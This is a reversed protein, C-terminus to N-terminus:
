PRKTNNRDGDKNEKNTFCYKNISEIIRNSLTYTNKHSSKLFNKAYSYLFINQKDKYNTAWEFLSNTLNVYHNLEISKCLPKIKNEDEYTLSWIYMGLLKHEFFKSSVDNMSYKKIINSYAVYLSHLNKSTEPDNYYNYLQEQINAGNFMNEPEKCYGGVMYTSIRPIDAVFKNSDIGKIGFRDLKVMYKILKERTVYQLNKDLSEIAMSKDFRNEDGLSYMRAYNQVWWMADEANNSPMLEEGKEFFYNQLGLFPKLLPNDYDIYLFDHLITIWTAHITTAHIFYSTAEPNVSQNANFEKKIAFYFNFHIAIIILFLLIFGKLWKSIKRKKTPQMKRTNIEEM